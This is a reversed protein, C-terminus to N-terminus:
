PPQCSVAKFPKSDCNLGTPGTPGSTWGACGPVRNLSLNCKNLYIDKGNFVSANGVRVLGSGREVGVIITNGNYMLLKCSCYETRAELRAGNSAEGNIAASLASAIYLTSLLILKMIATPRTQYVITHGNSISTNRRHSTHTPLIGLAIYRRFPITHLFPEFVSIATLYPTATHYLFTPSTPLSRSIYVSKVQRIKARNLNGLCSQM